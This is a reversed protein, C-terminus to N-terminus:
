PRAGETLVTWFAAQADHAGEAEDYFCRRGIYLRGGVDADVDLGALAPCNNWLFAKGEVSRDYEDPPTGDANALIQYARQLGEPDDTLFFYSEGTTIDALLKTDAAQNYYLATEADGTRKTAYQRLEVRVKGDGNVDTGLTALATELAAAADEGIPEAGVYAFIYDPKTKGIGFVNWLMSGVIWLLVAGVLFWWWHYHMWNSFRERKSYSVPASPTEDQLERQAKQKLYESAM